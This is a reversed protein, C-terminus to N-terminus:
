EAPVLYYEGDIEVIFYDEGAEMIKYNYKSLDEYSIVKYSETANVFHITASLFLVM